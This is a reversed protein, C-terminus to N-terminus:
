PAFFRPLNAQPHVAPTGYTRRVDFEKGEVFLVGPSGPGGVPRVEYKIPDRLRDVLLRVFDRPRAPLADAIAVQRVEAAPSFVALTM